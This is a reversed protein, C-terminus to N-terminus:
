VNYSKTTPWLEKVSFKIHYAVYVPLNTETPTCYKCTITDVQVVKDFAPKLINYPAGVSIIIDGTCTGPGWLFYNLHSSIAKPIQYMQSYYDLAGAEGYNGAFICALKQQNTPLHHYARAVTAAMQQWGLRDALPQPLHPTAPQDEAPEVLDKGGTVQIYTAPPLVPLFLTALGVGSIILLSIYSAKLWYWHTTSVFREILLAGAAFLMPYAPSLFYFKAHNLM